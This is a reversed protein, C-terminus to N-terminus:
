FSAKKHVAMSVLADFTGDLLAGMVATMLVVTRQVLNQHTGVFHVGGGVLAGVALGEALLLQLLCVAAAFRQRLKGQRILQHFSHYQWLKWFKYKTKQLYM